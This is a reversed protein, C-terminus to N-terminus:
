SAGSYGGTYTVVGIGLAVLVRGALSGVIQLLLTGLALLIAPM